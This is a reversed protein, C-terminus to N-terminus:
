KDVRSQYERIMKLVSESLNTYIQNADQINIKIGQQKGNKTHVWRAGSWNGDKDTLKYIPKSLEQSVPILGSFKQVGALHYPADYAVCEKFVSEDVIMNAKKLAPVLKQTAVEKIKEIWDRYAKAMTKPQDDESNRDVTYISYNQSIFGLM